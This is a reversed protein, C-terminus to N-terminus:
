PGALVSRYVALVDEALGEPGFSSAAARATATGLEDRRGPDGGLESLARGLAADDDAPVLVVPIGDRSLDRSGPRDVLVLVCGANAAELAAM